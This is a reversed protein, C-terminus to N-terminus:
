NTSRSQMPRTRTVIARPRRAGHIPIRPNPNHREVRISAPRVIAHLAEDEEIQTATGSEDTTVKVAEGNPLYLVREGGTHVGIRGAATFVTKVRRQEAANFDDKYFEIMREALSSM